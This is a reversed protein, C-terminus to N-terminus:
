LPILYGLYSTAGIYLTITKDSEILVVYANSGGSMDTKFQLRYNMKKENTTLAWDYIKGKSSIKILKSDNSNYRGESYFRYDPFNIEMFNTQPNIEMSRNSMKYEFKIIFKRSEILEGLAKYNMKMELIRANKRESKAPKQDQSICFFSVFCFGLILNLINHKM